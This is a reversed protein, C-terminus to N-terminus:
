SRCPTAPSSRPRRAARPPSGRSPSSAARQGQRDPRLHRGAPQRQRRRRPRHRHRRSVRRRRLQLRRHRDPQQRQQLRPRRQARRDRDARRVRDGARVSTSRCTSSPSRSGEAQRRARAIGQPHHREPAPRHRHHRRGDQGVPSPRSARRTVGPNVPSTPVGGGGGYYGQMGASGFTPEQPTFKDNPKITQDATLLGVVESVDAYKLPVM